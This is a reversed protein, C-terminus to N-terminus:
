SLDTGCLLEKWVMNIEKGASCVCVCSEQFYIGLLPGCPPPVDAPLVPRAPHSPPAGAAPDRDPPASLYQEPVVQAPLSAQPTLRFPPDHPPALHLGGHTRSLTPDIGRPHPNAELWLELLQM